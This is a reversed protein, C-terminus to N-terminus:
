VNNLSNNLNNVILEFDLIAQTPVLYTELYNIWDSTNGSQTNQIESYTTTYINTCSPLTGFGYTPDTITISEAFNHLSHLIFPNLNFDIPTNFLQKVFSIDSEVLSPSVNTPFISSFSPPEFLYLPDYCIYDTTLLSDSCDSDTRKNLVDQLSVSLLNESSKCNGQGNLYFCDGEIQCYNLDYNFFYGSGDSYSITTNRQMVGLSTVLGKLLSSILSESLYNHTASAYEHLHPHDTLEYSYTDTPYANFNPFAWYPITIGFLNLKDLLQASIPNEASYPIEISGKGLADLGKLSNVIYVNLYKTTDWAIANKFYELTMAKTTKGSADETFYHLGDRVYSVLNDGRRQDPISNGQIINVGPTALVAGQPDNEALELLINLNTNFFNSMARHAMSPTNPNPGVLGPSEIYHYIIKIRKFENAGIPEAAMVAEYFLKLYQASSEYSQRLLVQSTDFPINKVTNPM